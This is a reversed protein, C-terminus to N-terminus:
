KQIEDGYIDTTLNMKQLFDTLSLSNDESAGFFERAQVPDLAFESPKASATTTLSAAATATALSATPLSATPLSATPLSAATHYASPISINTTNPVSTSATTPVSAADVSVSV